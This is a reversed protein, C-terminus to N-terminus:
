LNSLCILVDIKKVETSILKAGYSYGCGVELLNKNKVFPIAFRYKERHAIALNFFLGPKIRKTEPDKSIFDEM